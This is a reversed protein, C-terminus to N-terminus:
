ENEDDKEIMKIYEDSFLSFIFSKRILKKAVDECIGKSTLYFLEDKDYSKVTAFHSAMVESTEIELIPKLLVTGDECIAKLDEEIINDSTNKNACACVSINAHHDEGICRLKVITKNNDGLINNQININCDNTNIFSYNIVLKSNSEQTTVINMDHGNDSYFNIIVEDNDSLKLDIDQYDNIINLVKKNM